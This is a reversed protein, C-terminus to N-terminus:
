AAVVSDDSVLRWQANSFVVLVGTGAGVGEATKRGNTAYAMRGAFGTPLNAVTYREPSGGHLTGQTAIAADSASPAISVSLTGALVMAKITPHGDLDDITIGPWPKADNGDPDGTPALEINPGPIFVASGSLNTLTADM